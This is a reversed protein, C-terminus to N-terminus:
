LERTIRTTLVYKEGCETVGLGEKRIRSHLTHRPVGALEVWGLVLLPLPPLDQEMRQGVPRSTLLPM